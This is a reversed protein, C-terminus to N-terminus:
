NKIVMLEEGRKSDYMLWFGIVSNKSLYIATETVFTNSDLEGM